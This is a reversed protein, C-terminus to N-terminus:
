KPSAPRADLFPAVLQAVLPTGLIDYHTTGPVIALRTVPRLSGDLGADRRGGGLVEYLEVIHQPRIADADAFVLMTPAKIAAVQDMWDYPQSGLTGMKTFLAQWDVEPYMKAAPSAKMGAAIQPAQEPMKELAELVEPYWADRQAPESVIVLRDVVEPHRIATQFAVGGGLSYGLLDARELGLHGILAAIDDAMSEYAFPRDIDRTRGHGQLHVAIVQRTRALEPLNPGFVESAAVGGHLLIVPDGGGHIEYYLKLGNVPAFGSRTPKTTATGGPPKSTDAPATTPSSGISIAAAVAIAVAGVLGLKTSRPM